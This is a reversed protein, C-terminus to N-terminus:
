ARATHGFLDLYYDELTPEVTQATEAPREAALVRLSVRGQESESASIHVISHTSQWATVEDEDCEVQWVRGLMRHALEKPSAMDVIEGKKLLIAEGAIFEIDSM